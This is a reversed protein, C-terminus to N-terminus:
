LDENIQLYVSVLFMYRLFVEIHILTLSNQYQPFLRTKVLEKFFVYYEHLGYSNM